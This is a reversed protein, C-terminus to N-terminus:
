CNPAIGRAALRQYLVSDDQRVTDWDENEFDSVNPWGDEYDCWHWYSTVISSAAVCDHHAKFQWVHGADKNFQHEYKEGINITRGCSHCKHQKRATRNEQSITMM